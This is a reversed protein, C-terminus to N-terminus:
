YMHVPAEITSSNPDKQEYVYSGCNECMKYNIRQFDSSVYLFSSQMVDSYGWPTNLPRYEQYIYVNGSRRIYKFKAGGYGLINGNADCEYIISNNNIFAFYTRRPPNVSEQIGDRSYYKTSVYFRVEAFANFSISAVAILLMLILVKKM